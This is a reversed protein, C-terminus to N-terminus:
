EGSTGTIYTGLFFSLIFYFFLCSLSSISLYLCCFGLLCICSLCFPLYMFLWSTSTPSYYHRRIESSFICLGRRGVLQVVLQDSMILLCRACNTVNPLEASRCRYTGCVYFFEGAFGPLSYLSHRRRVDFQHYAASIKLSMRIDYM